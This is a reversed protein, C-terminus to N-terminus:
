KSKFTLTNNIEGILNLDDNDSLSINFQYQGTSPDFIIDDANGSNLARILLVSYGKSNNGDIKGLLVNSLAHVDSNSGTPNQLYYGPVGSFGRLRAFLNTRDVEQIPYHVAGEHNGSTAFADLAARTWRNFQGPKNLEVGVPNETGNGDGITGHCLACEAQFYVDGAVPDGTFTKKNVLYYGPDLATFGAPKRILTQDTGDWDYMPGGRNTGDLSNRVYCKNGSDDTVTGSNDIKDIAFGLPESLALSWHWVDRKSSGMDFSLAFADDSRQSTWGSTSGLKRPDTDGNFLWNAKSANYVTDKWSILIYLSDNTYAAKMRIAPDKGKNFDLLGNYIGSVNFLGDDLPVNGTLLDQATIPLYNATKWYSSNIKNPLNTVYKAELTATPQSVVPKPIHITENQYNTCGILAIGIIIVAIKNM